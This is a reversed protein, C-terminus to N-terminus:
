GGQTQRPLPWVRPVEGKRTYAHLEVFNRSLNPEVDQSLQLGDEIHIGAWVYLADSAIRYKKADPQVGRHRVNRDGLRAQHSMIWSFTAIDKKWNPWKRPLFKLEIIGIVSRTNCVVLDPYKTESGGADLLSMAPEIFMRRRAPDLREKLRAWLAAQLSRESNIQQVAYDAAICENWSQVLQSRLLRRMSM